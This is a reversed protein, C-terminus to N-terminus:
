AGGAPGAADTPDDDGAAPGDAKPTMRRLSQARGIRTLLLALVVIGMVVLAGRSSTPSSTPTAGAAPTASATPTAAPSPPTTAAPQTAAPQTAVVAAHTATFTFSGTVPHGDASTVRWDVTYTGAPRGPALAQVVTSGVLQADGQALKTGDPGTVAVMTGIAVAPEAFMLVVQDPASDVTSGAAPLSGLLEDHAAAPGAGLAVAALACALVALVRRVRGGRTAM